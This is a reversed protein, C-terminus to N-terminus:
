AVPADSDLMEESDREKGRSLSRKKAKAAEIRYYQERTIAKAPPKRTRKKGARNLRVITTSTGVAGRKRRAM